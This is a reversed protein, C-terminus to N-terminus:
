ELQLLKVNAKKIWGQESDMTAVKYWEQSYDLIKVKIGGTVEKIKDSVIDPGQYLSQDGGFVIAFNINEIKHQRSNGAFVSLLLLGL